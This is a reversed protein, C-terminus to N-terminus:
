VANEYEVGVTEWLCELPIGGDNRFDPLAKDRVAECIECTRYRGFEGNWIGEALQHKEGVGIVSGCECCKHEKRAKPHSEWYASPSEGDGCM